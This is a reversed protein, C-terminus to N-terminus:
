GQQDNLFAASFRLGCIVILTSVLTAMFTSTYFGIGLILSLFSVVFSILGAIAGFFLRHCFKIQYQRYKNDDNRSGSELFATSRTSLATTNIGTLFSLSTQDLMSLVLFSVLGNIIAVTLAEILDWLAIDM